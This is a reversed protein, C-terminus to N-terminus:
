KKVCPSHCGACTIPGSKVGAPGQTTIQLHCNVCQQHMARSLTPRVALPGNEDGADKDAALVAAYEASPLHCARCSNEEGEVWVLKDQEASFVHHCAACNEDNGDVVIQLSGVHADHVLMDFDVVQCDSIVKPRGIHCSRCQVELPGSTQGSMRMDTHCSICHIHYLNELHEHNEEDSRMFTFSLEIRNADIKKHCTECNKQVSSLAEAHKDHLFIVAPFDIRGTAETINITMVDARADNQDADMTAAALSLTGAAVAAAIASILLPARRLLLLHQRM